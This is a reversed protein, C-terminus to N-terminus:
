GRPLDSGDDDADDDAPDDAPDGTAGAGSADTGGEAGADATPGGEAGADATPGGEAGADATPGPEPAPEPAPEAFAAPGQELLLVFGAEDLVRLGLEHARAEKQGANEGVVVFDTKKSVSSSAKGGRALIAEKAGDRSFGELGGTVVVSVGELHRPSSEDREDELRVGAARWAEVIDRHWAVAWWARVAEAIVPGVGDAAALEETSAGMVADLSGFRTALSRAATPGVHRISLAVLM